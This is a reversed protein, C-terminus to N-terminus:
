RTPAGAVEHGTARLDNVVYSLLERGHDSEVIVDDTRLVVDRLGQLRLVEGGYTSSAFIGAFSMRELEDGLLASGPLELPLDVYVAEAGQEYARFRAKHAAQALDQGPERVTLTAVRRRRDYYHHIGSLAPLRESQPPDLLRTHLRCASIISQVMARHRPAVYGPRASKPQVRLYYLTTSPQGATHAASGAAWGLLFGAEAAGLEVNALRGDPHAETTESYLGALNRKKAVFTLHRLVATFLDPGQVEPLTLAQGVHGDLDRERHLSMGAHCLLRGDDSEAVASYLLGANIRRAVEAEDYVWHPEYTEGYAARIAEGLREAEDARLGRIREHVNSGAATAM